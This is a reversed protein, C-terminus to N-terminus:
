AKLYICTRAVYSGVQKEQEEAYRDLLFDTLTNLAQVQPFHHARRAWM